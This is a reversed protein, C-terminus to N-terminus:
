VGRANLIQRDGLAADIREITEGVLTNGDLVIAHNSAAILKPFYEAVMSVLDAVTGDQELKNTFQNNIRREITVGNFDATTEVMKDGLTKLANIPADATSEIGAALGPPIWQGIEDRILRSPSNIGFFKKLWDKVNGVFGSIKNKLWQVKNNIGNWLGSVLDSGISVIKGPLENIKNVVSDVLSQAASRGKSALNSAWSGVKNVVNTLWTWVKGPLTQILNVVSNVFNSATNKAKTVMNSAWSTVRNIVNTLFTQIKGPLTQIFNVINNVFNTAMTKAKNVMSSAWSTVKNVINTLWTWIKGPLQSIFNVITNVFNTGLEIAKNIMNVRWQIVRTVINVLFNWIKGPLKSIFNVIKNLFNTGVEVAKDKMDSAWTAVKDITDLLWTWIKGPLEKIFNVANDVFEKFKTNNDYFYKFLGAFPNILMLLLSEWNASLWDKVSGVANPITVTFFEVIKDKVSSVASTINDWLNIFFNRFADCNNWLYICAAVLAAIAAIILVIPNALLTTNLFAIAKTVGSIIGQIALAGALVTFAAALGIAVATIVQMAGPHEKLWGLLDLFAQSLKEVLPLIADLAKAKLTDLAANVPSIAEGLAAQSEKLKLEAENADLVSGALEDYAKKSEGYTSNLFKAVVDAREQEDTIKALAENFADEVPLGEELAANFASQADKNGKLASNLNKNADKAWNITDAMTGTVKGVTITENISETLSEIPISDGYSAWVATAGEALKSVSETSTGLGMLNTIANTAMQDDGLYKYFDQYKGKAFDVSYGFTNASGELKAQMTRYEETAEDLDMLAGVLDGIASIASTIASAVLDALAGKMVTFGGSNNDASEGVNGLSDSLKNAEDEAESMKRKNEALDDNLASMKAALEQAERSSKGQELVVNTYEDRLQSLENEQQEIEASLKDLASAAKTNGLEDMAANTDALQSTYHSLKSETEIIERQFARMQDEAIEGREFQEIVQSEAEKLIKLKESTQAVQETLLKQRQTLVDVNDPNFKLLTNVDKLENQLAKSQKESSDLAKGLKTTDGGIEVTIGKIRGSAM